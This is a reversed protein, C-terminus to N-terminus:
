EYKPRQGTTWYRLKERLTKPQRLDILKLVYDDGRRERLIDYAGSAIFMDDNIGAFALCSMSIKQGKNKKFIDSFLEELEGSPMDELQEKCNKRYIEHLELSLIRGAM